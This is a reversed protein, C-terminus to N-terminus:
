KPEPHNELWTRMWGPMEPAKLALADVEAETRTRKSVFKGTKDNFSIGAKLRREFKGTGQKTMIPTTKETIAVKGDKDVAYAFGESKTGTQVEETVEVEEFADAATVETEIVEALKEARLKALQVTNWDRKVLDTHGEVDKRRLNYAAFTEETITGDIKQWFIVGLYKFVRKCIWDIGPGYTYLDLPADQPHSSLQLDAGADDTWWLEDPTANSVWIQGFGATDAAAAAQDSLSISGAVTLKQNPATTGIGVNGSKMTMVPSLTGATMNSFTTTVEEATDTVGTVQSLIGFGGEIAPTANSNYFSFGLSGIYDNALASKTTPREKLISFGSIAGDIQTSRLYIGRTGYNVSSNVTLESMPSTTGIGVKSGRPNLVLNRYLTGPQVAQIWSYDGDHVGFCLKDDTDIGTGTTIQFIGVQDEVASVGVVSLKALPAATGIGVNGNGLVAMRSGGVLTYSKNTTTTWALTTTMHTDDAITAITRTEGNATITDGVKFTNLFQTNTGVVNVDNVSVTGLGTTVQNVELLGEPTGTGIGFNNEVFSDGKAQLRAKTVNSLKCCISGSKDTCEGMTVIQNSDEKGIISFATSDHSKMQFDYSPNAVGIGIRSNTTDVNLINTGDAKQIQVANVADTTPKIVLSAAPATIAPTTVQTTFTPSDSFVAKLTGTEDSLVGALQASTTAAFFSLPDTANPVANAGETIAVFSPSSTTLVNQDMDYLENAGQGTDLSAGGLTGTTVISGTATKGEIVPDGDAGLV